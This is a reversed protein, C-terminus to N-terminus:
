HASSPQSGYSPYLVYESRLWVQAIQDVMGLELHWIATANCTTQQPLDFRSRLTTAPLLARRLIDDPCFRMAHWPCWLWWSESLLHESLYEPDLLSLVRAPLKCDMSNKKGSSSSASRFRDDAMFVSVSRTSQIRSEDGFLKFSELITM